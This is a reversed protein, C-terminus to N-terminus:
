NEYQGPNELTFWRTSYDLQASTSNLISEIVGRRWFDTQRSSPL